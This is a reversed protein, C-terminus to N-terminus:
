RSLEAIIEEELTNEEEEVKEEAMVRKELERVLGDILECKRLGVNDRERSRKKVGNRRRMEYARYKRWQKRTKDNNTM